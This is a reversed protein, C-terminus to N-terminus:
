PKRLVDSWSRYINLTEMLVLTSYAVPFSWSGIGNYASGLFGICFFGWFALGCYSATVRMHPSYKFGQFTGNVVLAILRVLAVLLLWIAWGPQTAWSQLIRFSPSDIFMDRQYILAAALLISPWVMLWETARIQWHQKVGNYVRLVIM